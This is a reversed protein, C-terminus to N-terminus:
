QTYEFGGTHGLDTFVCLDRAQLHLDLLHHAGALVRTRPPPPRPTSSSAVPAPLAWFVWSLGRRGAGNRWHGGIGRAVCQAVCVM